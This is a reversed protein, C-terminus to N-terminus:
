NAPHAALFGAGVENFAPTDPEKRLVPLQSRNLLTRGVQPAAVSTGWVYRVIGSRTGPGPVGRVAASVDSEAVCNPGKREGGRAPGVSSYPSRTRDAPLRSNTFGGAVFIKPSAGCASGILTGNVEIESREIATWWSQAMHTSFGINEGGWCLYGHVPATLPQQDRSKMTLKVPGPPARNQATSWTLTPAARLLLVGQGDHQVQWVANLWDPLGNAGNTDAGVVCETAEVCISIKDVDAANVWIEAFTATESESALNWEFVAPSNAGVNSAVLHLKDDHCNGAPFVIEMDFNDRDSEGLLADLAREFLSSGDHPGLYSGYACVVVCREYKHDKGFKRLYRLGDLICRHMAGDFPTEVVQRPLQVFAIDCAQAVLDDQGELSYGSGVFRGLVHSGHTLDGGMAAYTAARYCAEEDVSGAEVFHGIWEQLAAGGIEKGVSFGTPVSGPIAEFEPKTDQDWLTVVRTRFNSALFETHAFPCGHDIIAALVRTSPQSSSQLQTRGDVPGAASPRSMGTEYSPRQPILSQSLEVQKVFPQNCFEELAKRQVRCTVFRSEADLHAENVRCGSHEAFYARMKEFAAEGELEVTLDILVDDSPLFPFHDAFASAKAVILYPDIM